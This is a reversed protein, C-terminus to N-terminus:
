RIVNTMNMQYPKTLETGDLLIKDQVLRIRQQAFWQLILPYLKHELTQVRASLIAVTDETDILTKAQAIVPGGDLEPTVFHISCGHEKDGADLAKQHTHLGRYKPLLSPHINLMRGAFRNVFKETFIRMFGALVILDFGGRMDINHIVDALERDYEDRPQKKLSPIVYAPIEHQRARELGYAKSRNSIIAVIEANLVGSDIADIIAQLNSGNGSILVILKLKETAHNM